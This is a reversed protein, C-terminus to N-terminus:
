RLTSKWAYLPLTEVTTIMDAADAARWLGLAVDWLDHANFDVTSM